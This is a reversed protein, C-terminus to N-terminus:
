LRVEDELSAKEIDFRATSNIEEESLGKEQPEDLYFLSEWPYPGQHEEREMKNSWM